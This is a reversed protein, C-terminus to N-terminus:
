VARTIYSSRPYKLLQVILLQALVYQLLLLILNYPLFHSLQPCNSYTLYSHLVGPIYCGLESIVLLSGVPLLIYM